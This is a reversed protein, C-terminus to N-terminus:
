RSGGALLRVAHDHAAVALAEWVDQDSVSECAVQHLVLAKREYWTAVATASADAAPRTSALDNIAVLTSMV